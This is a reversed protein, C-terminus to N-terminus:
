QVFEPEDDQAGNQEAAAAAPPTAQAFHQRNAAVIRDTPDDDPIAPPPLTRVLTWDTGIRMLCQGLGLELLDQPMAGTFEPTLVRADRHGVRFAALCGVNGFLAARVAPSLQECFQNAVVLSFKLKRMEALMQDFAAARHMFRQFEDVVLVHPV